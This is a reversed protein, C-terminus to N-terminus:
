YILSYFLFEGQNNKLVLQNNDISHVVIDQINWAFKLQAPRLEKRESIVIIQMDGSHVTVTQTGYKPSVLRMTKPDKDLILFKFLFKIHRGLMNIYVTM